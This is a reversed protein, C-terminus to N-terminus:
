AAGNGDAVVEEDRGGAEGGAHAADVGLVGFDHPPHRALPAGQSQSAIADRLLGDGAAGDDEVRGKVRGAVADVRLDAEKRGLPLGESRARGGVEVGPGDRDAGADDREARRDSGARGAEGLEDEVAGDGRRDGIAEDEAVGRRLAGDAASTEEVQACRDAATAGGFAEGEEGGGGLAVRGM